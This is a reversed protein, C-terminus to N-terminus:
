CCSRLKYIDNGIYRQKFLFEYEDGDAKLIVKAELSSGITKENRANELAKLVEERVDILRNWKNSLESNDYEPNATPWSNLQVSEANDEKTHPVYKWM